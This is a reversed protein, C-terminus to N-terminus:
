RPASMARRIKLQVDQSVDVESHTFVASVALVLVVLLGGLILRSRMGGGKMTWEEM